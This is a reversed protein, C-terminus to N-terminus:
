GQNVGKPQLLLARADDGGPLQVRPDHPQAGTPGGCGAGSGRPGPANSLCKTRVFLDQCVCMIHPSTSCLTCTQLVKSVEDNTFDPRFITRCPTSMWNPYSMKSPLSTQIFMNVFHATKDDTEHGVSLRTQLVAPGKFPQLINTLQGALAHSTVM